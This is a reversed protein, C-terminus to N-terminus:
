RLLPTGMDEAIITLEHNEIQERDLSTAITVAGSVPDLAFSGNQHSACFLLLCVEYKKINNVQSGSLSFTIAGRDGSDADTAVVRTLETGVTVDEAVTM